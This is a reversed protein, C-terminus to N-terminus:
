ECLLLPGSLPLDRCLGMDENPRPGESQHGRVHVNGIQGDEDAWRLDGRGLLQGDTGGGAWRVRGGQHSLEM